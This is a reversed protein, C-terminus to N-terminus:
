SLGMAASALSQYTGALSSVRSQLTQALTSIGGDGPICGTPPKNNSLGPFNYHKPLNKMADTYYQIWSSYKSSVDRITALMDSLQAQTTQEIGVTPDPISTVSAPNNPDIKAVTSAVADINNLVKSLQTRALALTKPLTAAYNPVNIKGSDHHTYLSGKSHTPYKFTRFKDNGLCKVVVPSTFQYVANKLATASDQAAKLTLNLQAMAVVTQSSTSPSSGPTSSASGAKSGQSSANWVFLLIAVVAIVAVLVAFVRM